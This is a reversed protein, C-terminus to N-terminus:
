DCSSRLRPLSHPLASIPRKPPSIRRCGTLSRVHPRRLRQSHPGRPYAQPGYPFAVWGSTLTGLYRSLTVVFPTPLRFCSPPPSLLLWGKFFAYCSVLRSQPGQFHVPSFDAVSVRSCRFTIQYPPTTRPYFGSPLAPHVASSHPDQSSYCCLSTIFGTRRLPLPEM